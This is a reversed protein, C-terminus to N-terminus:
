DPNSNCIVGLLIVVLLVRASHEELWELFGPEDKLAGGNTVLYGSPASLALPPNPSHRGAGRRVV